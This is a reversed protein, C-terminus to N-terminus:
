RTSVSKKIAPLLLLSLAFFGALVLWGENLSQTLAAHEVLPKVIARTMPDVPGMDHGRFLQTPLGVLRAAAADGAQLRAVLTAAHGATRTTLLTDILAIGIAGGLNRMLNFLGSADPVEADSWGELALRTAPLVCLMVGLGRLIQPWFLGWFDSHPTALGNTFLGLGFLGYGFFLLLRNDVRSELLAAVPAMVLQAAGSVIMIEGIELPNHGRVLGLFLALMYVSGFLGMGFVFSLASGLAFARHRFRRLDVFPTPHSLARWVAAIASVICIMAVAYVFGGRWDRGPAENLLLELSALFLAALILTAYDLTKLVRPEATGVRVCVAVTLCVLLGPVINVLFIWHWSYHQTLYGGVLPGITPAIVAFTGAITTALIERERPMMVFISTFVAPVLMGACFGQVVRVAVLMDFSNSLACALSALTFGFTAAAFMWRLSFARTLIGSLPIAIVEAMLYGTQIWGLRAPAIHLAAGVNTLASAVVQIDLIAMFLGLCLALFGLWLLVPNVPAM